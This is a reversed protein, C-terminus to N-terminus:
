NQKFLALLQNLQEISCSFELESVPESFTFLWRLPITQHMPTLEPSASMSPVESQHDYPPQSEVVLPQPENVNIQMGAREQVEAVEARMAELAALDARVKRREELLKHTESVDLLRFYDAVTQKQEEKDACMARVAKEGEAICDVAKELQEKASALTTSRGLWQSGKAVGYTTLLRDFSVLDKLAPAYDYYHEALEQKRAERELTEYAEIFVKYEADLDSLPATIDAVQSRFNKLADELARTLAKRENDIETFDRRCAARDRKAQKYDSENKIERPSYLTVREAVKARAEAIFSDARSLAALDVDIVEPQAEIVNNM